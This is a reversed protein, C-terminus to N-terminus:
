VPEGLLLWREFCIDLIPTQSAMKFKGNSIQVFM